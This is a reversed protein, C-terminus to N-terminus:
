PVRRRGFATVIHGDMEGFAVVVQLWRSPGAGGLLFWEEGPQRGERVVEPSEVARRVEDLFPELEPHGDLVHSWRETTLRVTRGRPERVSLLLTM